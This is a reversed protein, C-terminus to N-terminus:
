EIISTLNFKVYFCDNSLHIKRKGVKGNSYKIEGLSAFILDEDFIIPISFERNFKVYRNTKSVINDNIYKDALNNYNIIYLYLVFENTKRRSMIGVFPTNDGNIRINTIYKHINEKVPDPLLYEIGHEGTQLVQAFGTANNIIIISFLLVLRIKIYRM